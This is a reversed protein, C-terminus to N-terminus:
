ERNKVIVEVELKDDIDISVIHHIPYGLKFSTFAEEFTEAMVEHKLISPNGESDKIEYGVSYMNM